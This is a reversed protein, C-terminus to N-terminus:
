SATSACAARRTSRRAAPRPRAARPARRRGRPAAGRRGRLCVAVLDGAVAVRLPRLGNRDLAAGCTVGDTFVLGAPGDWPEVLMAHYRHMAREEDLRAPREAMRAARAHTVAERVDRGRRPRAARARQRAPGLRLGDPRAGARARRRRGRASARRWGPSTARSRTSRATTASCGSRSRGSGARSPTRRSASTSSRGPSPRARPRPPRPLVGRAAHRRLAGQLHGHPVLALRPLRGRRARRAPAGPLRPAGRRARGYPALLLQAIRPMSASATSGLASVDHPVERWGLPELGEARCADEVVGRLWPERLFCMAIGAGTSARSRRTSRSCSAPATAASATPPGPAATRSPRSARSRATSCSARPAGARTRSSASAVPM